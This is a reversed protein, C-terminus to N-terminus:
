FGDELEKVFKNWTESTRFRAIRQPMLKDPHEQVVGKKKISKIANNFTPISINLTKAMSAKSAYSHGTRRSLGWILDTVLVETPSLGFEQQTQWWHKVYKRKFIAM